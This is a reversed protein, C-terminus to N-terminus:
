CNRMDAGAGAMTEFDSVFADVAATIAENKVLGEIVEPAATAAGIGHVCLELLQRSNKFSAALVDTALGNNRFMDHILKATEVGNFGMNDIRNIYPAAYSAGCKGALFAQMPTYVATATFRLGDKKLQKMAKFGEPVAPIKVYTHEGLEKVIHRAKEMIAEAKRSVAQVHLQAQPGTFARIEKLIAYPSGSCRSLITPNTTVGDVPYCDYIRRISTLDADDILLLM